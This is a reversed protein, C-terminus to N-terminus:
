SGTLAAVSGGFARRLPGFHCAPVDVLRLTLDNGYPAVHAGILNLAEQKALVRGARRAIDILGERWVNRLRGHVRQLIYRALEDADAAATARALECRIVVLRPGPLERASLASYKLRLLDWPPTGAHLGDVGEHRSPLVCTVKDANLALLSRLLWPGPDDRLDVVFEDVRRTVSPHVGRDLLTGLGIVAGFENAPGPAVTALGIRQPQITGPSIVEPLLKLM